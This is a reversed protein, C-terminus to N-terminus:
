VKLTSIGGDIAFKQGTIWSSKDSLLFSIIQSFDEPQGLRKLPHRNAGAEIKEQSNTLKEAMPTQTLSPSVVNVRIKPSWEAALAVALGEIAGKSLSVSAHYPMGVKTAVSSILVVSSSETLLHAYSKLVQIAGFVHIQLDLNFDELKLSRFPKLQISGPFYVLGDLATDIVPLNETYDSVPFDSFSPNRSLRLIQHGESLLQKSTGLAMASSAGVLLYNKM